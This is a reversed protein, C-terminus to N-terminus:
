QEQQNLTFVKDLQDAFVDGRWAAGESMEIIGKQLLEVDLVAIRPAAFGDTKPDDRFRLAIMKRTIDSEEQLEFTVIQFPEGCIGNRHYAPASISSLNM